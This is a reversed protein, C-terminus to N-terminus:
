QEVIKIRIFQRKDFLENLYSNVHYVTLYLHGDESWYTEHNIMLPLWYKFNASMIIEFNNDSISYLALKTNGDGFYNPAIDILHKKDPSIHPPLSGMRLTKEGSTKDIFIYDSDGWHMGLILYQNLFDFQGIYEFEVKDVEADPEDILKVLGDQCDQCPLELIGNNKKITADTQLFNVASNKMREFLQEDVLEIKLYKDVQFRTESVELYLDSPTLMLVELADTNNEEFLNDDIFASHLNLGERVVEVDNPSEDVEIKAVDASSGTQRSGCGWAAVMAAVVLFIAVKRIGRGAKSYAGQVGGGKGKAEPLAGCLGTFVCDTLGGVKVAVRAVYRKCGFLLALYFDLSNM